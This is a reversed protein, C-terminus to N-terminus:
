SKVILGDSLSLSYARLAPIIGSLVSTVIIIFMIIFENYGPSTIEIYLGTFNEIIPKFTFLLAYM